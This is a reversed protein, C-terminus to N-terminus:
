NELKRKKVKPERRTLARIPPNPGSLAQELAGFVDGLHSVTVECVYALGQHSLTALVGEPGCALSLRAPEIVRDRGVETRTLWDWLTPYADKAPDTDLGVTRRQGITKAILRDLAGLQERKKQLRKEDPSPQDRDM